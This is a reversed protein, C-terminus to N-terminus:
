EYGDRIQARLDKLSRPPYLIRFSTLVLSAANPTQLLATGKAQTGMNPETHRQLHPLIMEIDNMLPMLDKRNHDCFNNAEEKAELTQGMGMETKTQKEEKTKTSIAQGLKPLLVMIFDQWSVPFTRTAPDLPSQCQGSTNKMGGEKAGSGDKRSAGMEEDEMLQGYWNPKHIGSSPPPSFSPHQPNDTSSPCHAKEEGGAPEPPGTSASMPLGHKLCDNPDFDEEEQGGPALTWTGEELPCESARLLPGKELGSESFGTWRLANEEVEQGPHIALAWTVTVPQPQEQGELRLFNEIGRFHTIERCEGQLLFEKLLVGDLPEKGLQDNRKGGNLIRRENTKQFQFQTTKKEKGLDKTVGVPQRPTNSTYIFYGHNVASELTFYSGVQEKLFTFPLREEDMLSNLEKINKKEPFILCSQELFIHHKKETTAKRLHSTSVSFTEGTRISKDPVVRLVEGELVLVQQNLDRINYKQFTVSKVKPGPGPICRTHLESHIDAHQRTKHVVLFQQE